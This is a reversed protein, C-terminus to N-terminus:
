GAIQYWSLADDQSAYQLMSLALMLLNWKYSDDKMQRIEPRYPVSGNTALPLRNVIIPGDAVNRKTLAVVDVGFDYAQALSVPGYSAWLCLVSVRM